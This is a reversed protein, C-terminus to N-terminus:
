VAAIAELKPRVPVGGARASELVADALIVARAGDRISVAPKAEGRAAALFSSLELALPEQRAAPLDATRGPQVPAFGDLMASSNPDVSTFSVTRQLLSVDYAGASTTVLLQRRKAPALWSARIRAVAGGAFTFLAEAFDERGEILRSGAVATVSLPSSGAIACALDIDHVMLDRVVGVDSIREPLPSERMAEIAYLAEGASGGLQEFLRTVAPNFREVHGVQVIAGAATARAVLDLAEASDAALPKEVLIPIKREIARIVLAAHFRTPAAIIAAELGPHDLLEAADVYPTASPAVTLAADRAADVPDSIAVIEVNPLTALVRLHNRGMVGLGILGIKMRAM